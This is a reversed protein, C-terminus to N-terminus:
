CRRKCQDYTEESTKECDIGVRAPTPRDDLEKPLWGEDIMEETHMFSAVNWMVAAIHDETLRRGRIIQEKYDNIHREASDLYGMLSQGKEWNREGYKDMGDEMREAYRRLAIPSVLDYRGKGSRIDRVSGTSFERREGSDPLKSMADSYSNLKDYAQDMM